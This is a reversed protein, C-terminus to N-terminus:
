EAAEEGEVEGEGGGAAAQRIRELLMTRADSGGPTPGQPASGRGGRGRGRGSGKRGGKSPTPIPDANADGNTDETQGDSSAVEKVHEAFAADYLKDNSNSMANVTQSVLRKMLEDKHTETLCVGTYPVRHRVAEMAFHGSAPSMDYIAVAQLFHVVEKALECPGEHFFTPLMDVQRPPGEGEHEVPCAGGPLPLNNDGLIAKKLKYPVNWVLATDSWIPKDLPGIVNGRTSGSTVM